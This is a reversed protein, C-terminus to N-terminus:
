LEVPEQVGVPLESRREGTISHVWVLSPPNTGPDEEIKWEARPWPLSAVAQAQQGCPQTAPLLHNWPDAEPGLSLVPVERSPPSPLAVLPPAEEVLLQEALYEALCEELYEQLLKWRERELMQAHDLLVKRIHDQSIGRQWTLHQQMEMKAEEHEKRLQETRGRIRQRVGEFLEPDECMMLLLTGVRQLEM